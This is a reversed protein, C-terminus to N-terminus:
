YNTFDLGGNECIIKIDEEIDEIGWFEYSNIKIKETTLRAGCSPCIQNNVLLSNTYYILDKLTNNNSVEELLEKISIIKEELSYNDDLVDNILYEKLM